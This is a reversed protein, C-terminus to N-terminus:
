LEGAQDLDADLLERLEGLAQERSRFHIANIGNQRAAKVNEEFDDLFVMEGPEGELQHIIYQYVRDDPKALKIEASIFIQDFVQDINWTERMLLRLNDWANSLLATTYDAKLDRIFDILEEDLVDGGWFEEEFRQLQQDDLGLEEQLNKWHEDASIEGVTAKKSSETRYVLNSLEWYDMGYQKALKKRPVRDETRVLVGGLDFIVTTIM